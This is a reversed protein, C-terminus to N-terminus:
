IVKVEPMYEIFHGGQDIFAKHKKTIPEAYRWPLIVVYDPKKDYLMQPHYVPIHYGPSFSDQKLPNDDVIFDLKKGIGYYHLMTTVSASAGYGVVTKGQAIFNDLLANLAIKSADLKARMEHYPALTHYGGEEELLKLENVSSSIPRPSNLRQAIGRVSGGKSDIRKVDIIELGHAHFFADLPKVSFYSLHEHYINDFLMQDVHDVLYGIEFVFVGDPALLDRIGEITDELHDINAIVNNACVIAAAGREQKIQRAVDSTFYTELTDIGAERSKQAAVPAPEVGLVQLGKDQFFKLLSGVNSGLEVVLGGNPPKIREMIDDAYKRFHEVLGLSSTTVYVYDYYIIDPDVVDHLQTHGCDRCLYLELPYAEQTESLREKALYKDALPTPAMPLALQINTSHCLRCDNRTYFPNKM